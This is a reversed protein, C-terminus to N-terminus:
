KFHAEELRDLYAEKEDFSRVLMAARELGRIQITWILDKLDAGKMSLFIMQDATNGSRDLVIEVRGKRLTPQGLAAYGAFRCREDLPLWDRRQDELEKPDQDIAVKMEPPWIERYRHLELDLELKYTKGQLQAESRLYEVLSMLRQSESDLVTEPVISGLQSLGVRALIALIAVVVLLEILTFGGALRDRTNRTPAGRRRSAM